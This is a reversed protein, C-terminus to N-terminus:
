RGRKRALFGVLDAYRRGNLVNKPEVWGRRALLLGLGMNRELMDTRHADSDISLTVGAQVARRALSAELDLHSPAGDIELVTETECALEFLRDVDLDYGPREPGGRNMPHTVISVLPHTMAAEYRELLRDPSHGARDHLSALVIDLSSLVREPFDLRANPLIDVEAGHLITIQPYQERVAAIEEAQRHVDDVSLNHSAASNTSHDTIALYDYGLAACHAVMEEVSDRGDSWRTHMHLDGRIGARSVLSPLRGARAADIEEGDNRLEPPILPLDLAAYIAEESSAIVQGAASRLGEADLTLDRAGALTRLRDVHFPSGTLHLLLAGAVQPHVCHVAIPVREVTLDSRHPDQRIERNVGPLGRIADFAATPDSTAAVIALADAFDEGRRV